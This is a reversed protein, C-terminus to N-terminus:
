LLTEYVSLPERRDARRWWSPSFPLAPSATIADLTKNLLDEERIDYLANRGAFVGWLYDALLRSTAANQPVTEIAVLTVFLRKRFELPAYCRCKINNIVFTIEDHMAKMASVIQALAAPDLNSQFAHWRTRGPSLETGFFVRFHAPEILAERGDVHRSGTAAAVIETVLTEKFSRCHRAWQKKLRWQQYHLPVRVSFAYLAIATLATLAVHRVTADLDPLGLCSRFGLCVATALPFDQPVCILVGLCAGALAM